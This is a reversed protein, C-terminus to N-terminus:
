KKGDTYKYSYKQRQNHMMKQQMFAHTFYYM